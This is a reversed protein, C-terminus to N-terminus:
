FPLSSLGIHYQSEFPTMCLASVAMVTSKSLWGFGSQGGLHGGKGRVELIGQVMLKFLSRRLGEFGALAAARESAFACAAM